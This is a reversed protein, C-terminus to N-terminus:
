DCPEDQPVPVDQAHEPDAPANDAKLRALVNSYARSEAPFPINPVDPATGRSRLLRTPRLCIDVFSERVSKSPSGLTGKAVPIPPSLAQLVKRKSSGSTHPIPVPNRKAYVKSPVSTSQSAESLSQSHLSQLSQDNAYFREYGYLRSRRPEPSSCWCM